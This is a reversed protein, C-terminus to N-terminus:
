DQLQGRDLHYIIYGSSASGNVATLSQPSAEALEGIVEALGDNPTLVIYDARIALLRQRFDAVTGFASESGQRLNYHLLLPDFNFPRLAKRDTFLYYTPDHVAVIVADRPAERDIWAIQQTMAHWDNVGWAGFWTGGKERIATVLQWNAVGASVLLVVAFVAAVQKRAGAGVFGLWVLLPLVPVVFRVPPWVWALLMALYAAVVIAVPLRRAFWLGRGVLVSAVIAAIAALWVPAILGWYQGLTVMYAANVALVTM